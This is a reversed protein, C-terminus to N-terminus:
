PSTNKKYWEKRWAVIKKDAEKLSDVAPLIVGKGYPTKQLVDPSKETHQWILYIDYSAFGSETQAVITKWPSLGHPFM